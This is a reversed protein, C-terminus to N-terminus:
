ALNKGFGDGKMVALLAAIGLCSLVMFVAGRLLHRAWPRASRTDRQLTGAAANDSFSDVTKMRHRHPDPTPTTVPDDPLHQGQPQILEDDSTRHRLGAVEAAV